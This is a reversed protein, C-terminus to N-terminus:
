PATSGTRPLDQICALLLSCHKPSVELEESALDEARLNLLAEGDIEEAKMKAVYASAQSGFELRLGQVFTCVDEIRWGEVSEAVNPHQADAAEEKRRQSFSNKSGLLMTSILVLRIRM